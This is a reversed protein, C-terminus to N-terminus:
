IAATERVPRGDLIAQARSLDGNKPLTIADTNLAREFEGFAGMISRMLHVGRYVDLAEDLNRLTSSQKTVTSTGCRAVTGPSPTCNERRGWTTARLCRRDFAGLM